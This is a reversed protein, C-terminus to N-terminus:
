PIGFTILKMPNYIILSNNWSIQSPIVERAFLNKFKNFEFMLQPNYIIRFTKYTDTASDQYEDNVLETIILETADVISKISAYGYSGSLDENAFGVRMSEGFLSCFIELQKDKDPIHEDSAINLYLTNGCAESIEDNSFPLSRMGNWIKSLLEAIRNSNINDPIEEFIWNITRNRVTPDSRLIQKIGFNVIKRLEHPTKFNNLRLKKTMGTTEHFDEDKYISWAESQNSWSELKKLKSPEKFAKPSVGNPFVEWHIIDIKDKSFKRHLLSTGERDFYQDLLLELPSKDSPYIIEKTPYSPYGSYPFIIKDLPYDIEFDYNCLLFVGSQAQLRWLNIVDINVKEIQCGKRIDLEKIINWYSLLDEIDLCYICSNRDSPPTKTDSAFFGAVGPDTTFDIYHTPIGYHQMIAELENVRLPDLLYKLEITELIWSMFLECRYIAEETDNNLQLRYFSSHPVYDIVQGRFWSYKKEDKFKYALDVAEEVNSVQYVEPM